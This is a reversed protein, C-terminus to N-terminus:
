SLKRQSITHLQDHTCWMARCNINENSYTQPNISRHVAVYKLVTFCNMDQKSTLGTYVCMKKFFNASTIPDHLIYYKVCHKLRTNLSCQKLLNIM